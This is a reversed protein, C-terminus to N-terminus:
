ASDLGTSQLWGPWEVKLRSGGISKYDQFMLQRRRSDGVSAHSIIPGVIDKCEQVWLHDILHWQKKVWTSDFCKCTCCVTLVLRPLKDHLPNVVIVRAFDGVKNTWFADLV